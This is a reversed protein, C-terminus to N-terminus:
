KQTTMSSQVGYRVVNISAGKKQAVGEEANIEAM